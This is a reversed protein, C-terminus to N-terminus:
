IPQIAHAAVKGTEEQGGDGRQDNGLDDAPEDADGNVRDFNGAEAHRSRREEAKSRREFMAGMNAYIQQDATKKARRFLGGLKPTRTKAGQGGAIKRILGNGHNPISKAEAVHGLSEDDNLQPNRM